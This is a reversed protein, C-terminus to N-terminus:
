YGPILPRRGGAMALQKTPANARDRGYTSAPKPTANQSSQPMTTKAKLMPKVADGTPGANTLGKSAAPGSGGGVRAPSVHGGRQYGKVTVPGGRCSGTFGASAPFDHSGYKLSKGM